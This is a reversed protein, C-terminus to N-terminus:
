YQFITNRDIQRRNDFDTPLQPGGYQQLDSGDGLVGPLGPNLGAPIGAQGPAGVRAITAAGMQITRVTLNESRGGSDKAGFGIGIRVMRPLQNTFMWESVWDNRRPDFFEMAFLSVKPALKITYPEQGRELFELLPSQKLLLTGDSNVEFTVRRVEQGQFLGSGPFSAPLRAVFSLWAYAGGTDAFFSYYKANDAYIVASGLAQQLAQLTIRTRQVEAAALLGRQSGKIIGSWSSYIAVMIMSFLAIALMVEIMTFAAIQRVRSQVLSNPITKM